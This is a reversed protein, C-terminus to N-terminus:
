LAAFLETVIAHVISKVCRYLSPAAAITAVDILTATDRHQDAPVEPLSPRSM